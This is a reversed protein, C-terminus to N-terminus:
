SHTAKAQDVVRVQLVMGDHGVVEVRLGPAIRSGDASRALWREGQVEVMGRGNVETRCHGIRGMQGEVGPSVASEPALAHRYFPYLVADKALWLVMVVAAATTDIWGWRLLALVVLLVLALGPIQLLAYFALPKVQIRPRLVWGEAPRDPLPSARANSVRWRCARASSSWCKRTASGLSTVLGFIQGCRIHFAYVGKKASTLAM